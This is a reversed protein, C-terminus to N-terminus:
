IEKRQMQERWTESVLEGDRDLKKLIEIFASTKRYGGRRSHILAGKRIMEGIFNAAEEIPLETFNVIDEARIFEAEIIGRVSEKCNPLSKLRSEVVDPDALKDEHNKAKSFDLYGLAKSSYIRHLFEEVVEVHCKRIIVTKGDDTSFLRAALAACLRVLKLRQDSPEVIPCASSYTRGMSTACDLIASEADAEILVDTEKRSWAWGVLHSCLDSTFVQEVEPANKQNVVEIPVEGSAVAMVMDFRRIDELSGILERVADVGYNYGSLKNTESRANSIWVLRTRANTRAREIKVIEAIGSSRMDTMKALEAVGMGKIEELLVLRRDNLPITGWTVFWGGSTEQLGGVIGAVSARKSDVREGCKYHDILRSSTESKGQGSDGIVLCDVWGKIPRALKQFPIYLLSHWALDYFLHLDRRHFIKTVNAELDAYIEDLKEKISEKTNEKPQFKKLDLSLEFSDLDNETQEAKYLVMTATSTAPEVCARADFEYTSNDAIGHGVYYARRTVQQEKAHGIAIQPILRVEEINYNSERKFACVKCGPYVKSNKKIIEDQSDMKVNLMELLAPSSEPITFSYADKSQYVPCMQCYDKSKNCVVTCKKPVVYPATGKASVVATTRILRNYHIANGSDALKVPVPDNMELEITAAVNKPPQFTPTNEILAHLDIAGRGLTVFYDTIDKKGIALLEQLFINKISKAYAFASYCIKNAGIRGKDDADLIIVVHKDRLLESWEAKWTGAGATGTIAAFGKQLLIIAKFEGETLYVTESELSSLPWVSAKCGKHSIMKRVGDSDYKYSRVNIYGGAKNTIPLTVRGNFPTWGMRWKVIDEVLIGHQKYLRDIIPQNNMLEKHWLEVQAIEVVGPNGFGMVNNILADVVIEPQGFKTAVVNVIEKTAGCSLCKFKGNQKQIGGHCDKIDTHKDNHYPCEITVFDGGGDYYEIGMQTLTALHDKKAM